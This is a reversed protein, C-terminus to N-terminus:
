KEDLLVVAEASIAKGRGVDGMGEGRTAKVSILEPPVGMVGAIRGVMRSRYESLRPREAQIITDANVLRHGRSKMMGCVEELIRISSIGRYKGTQPFHDGLDGMSLAGLIADSLAHILVDADSHGDLGLDFDIKIGGLVLNRGKVLPHIDYGM